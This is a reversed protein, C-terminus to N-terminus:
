DDVEPADLRLIRGGYLSIEFEFAKGMFDFTIDYYSEEADLEIELNEVETIGLYDLVVQLAQEETFRGDPPSPPSELETKEWNLIGEDKYLGIEFEYEHGDYIFSIDYYPHNTDRDVEIEPNEVNQIGLYDLAIQLAQDATILGDPPTATELSEQKCELIAGDASSIVYEYLYDFTLIWIDYHTVEDSGDVKGVRVSLDVIDQYTLGSHALAIDWAENKYIKGPQTDETSVPPGETNGDPGTTEIPLEVYTKYIVRHFKLTNEAFCFYYDADQHKYAVVTMAGHEPIFVNMWIDFDYTGNPLEIKHERLYESIQSHYNLTASIQEGTVANYLWLDSNDGDKLEINFYFGGSFDFDVELKGVEALQDFEEGFIEVMIPRLSVLNYSEVIELEPTLLYAFGEDETAFAFALHVGEDTLVWEDAFAYNNSFFDAPYNIVAFIEEMLPHEPLAYAMTGSENVLYTYDKKDYKLEVHYYATEGWTKTKEEANEIQSRVFPVDCHEYIISILDLRPASDAYGGTPAPEPPTLVPGSAAPGTTNRPIILLGAVLMVLAITAALAGIARFQIPTRVKKVPKEAGEWDQRDSLLPAAPTSIARGPTANEFAKRIRKELQRKTM